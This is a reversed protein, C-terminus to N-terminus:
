EEVPAPADWRLDIVQRPGAVAAEHLVDTIETGVLEFRELLADRLAEVLHRHQELLGRVSLKQQQLMEEVAARGQSDGLVRGVINTDSMSSNQVAAYSVLTGAMGCMGVMQAAVTTAYKLDSGPGTSVDAFFIEEAAQGGM